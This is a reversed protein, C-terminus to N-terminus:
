VKGLHTRREVEDVSMLFKSLDRDSNVREGNPFIFALVAQQLPDYVVKFFANPVSVLGNLSRMENPSDFIPGSVIFLVGRQDVWSRIALDLKAWSGRNLSPHQPSLNSHFQVERATSYNWAMQFNPVLHGRDFGSGRYAGLVAEGDTLAPDPMFPFRREVVHQRDALVRYSVWKPVGMRQDYSLAFGLRCLVHDDSPRGYRLHTTCHAEDETDRYPPIEPTLTQMQPFAVSGSVIDEKLEKPLPVPSSHELVRVAWTRLGSAYNENSGLERERLISTALEVYEKSLARAQIANEIWYGVLTIAPVILVVAITRVLKLM